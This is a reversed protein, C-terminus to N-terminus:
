YGIPSMGPKRVTYKLIQELIILCAKSTNNKAVVVLKALNLNAFNVTMDHLFLLNFASERFIIGIGMFFLVLLICKRLLM